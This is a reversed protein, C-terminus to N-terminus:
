LTQEGELYRNIYEGGIILGWVVEEIDICLCFKGM